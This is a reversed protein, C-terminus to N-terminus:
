LNLMRRYRRVHYAIVKKILLINRLGIYGGGGRFMKLCFNCVVVDKGKEDRQATAYDWAKDNRGRVNSQATSNSQNESRQTENTEM